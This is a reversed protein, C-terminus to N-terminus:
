QGPVTLFDAVREASLDDLRPVTGLCPENICQKLTDINEQLRPMEPDLINAVWGAIQLGDRRIAEMTLLAHNLCGLRMGVVVIVACELERAVDALTERSNIPVRWGGAGEVVVMDVPMLSVGRCYGVLRSASMRLGAEAAAIHPAIAPELAVPNIQQYSLKHSAAAQLQLADSNTMGQETVECGAAVPKIAATRLGQQNAAALFGCAVVTKGVDTDTGTIFLWQKAM